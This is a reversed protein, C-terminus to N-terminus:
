RSTFSTTIFTERLAPKSNSPVFRLTLSTARDHFIVGTCPFSIPSILHDLKPHNSAILSNHVLNPSVSTAPTHPMRNHRSHRRPMLRAPMTQSRVTPCSIHISNVGFRSSPTNCICLRPRHKNVLRLALPIGLRQHTDPPATAAQQPIPHCYSSCIIESACSPPRIPHPRQRRNLLHHHIRPNSLTMPHHDPRPAEMKPSVPHHEITSGKTAPHNPPASGNRRPTTSRKPQSESSTSSQHRPM